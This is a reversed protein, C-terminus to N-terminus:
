SVQGSLAVNSRKLLPWLERFEDRFNSQGFGPDFRQALDLRVFEM